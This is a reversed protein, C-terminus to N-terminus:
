NTSAHVIQRAEGQRISMSQQWDFVLDALSILPSYPPIRQLRGNIFTWGGGDGGDFL